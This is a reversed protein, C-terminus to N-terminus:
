SMRMGEYSLQDALEDSIEFFGLQGKYPIPNLFKVPTHLEFGHPGVFWPSESHTVQNWITVKGLIAGTVMTNPDPIWVGTRRAVERLEPWGDTDITLSAHIFCEFPMTAARKRGMRWKRHEIDKRAAATTEHEKRM